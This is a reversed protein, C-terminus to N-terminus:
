LYFWYQATFKQERTRGIHKTTTCRVTAPYVRGGKTFARLAYSSKNTFFNTTSAPTVTNIDILGWPLDKATSYRANTRIQKGTAASKPAVTLAFKHWNTVLNATYTGVSRGSPRYLKSKVSEGQWVTRNTSALRVCKYKYTGRASLIATRTHNSPVLFLTEIDRQSPLPTPSTQPLAVALASHVATLLLVVLTTLKM